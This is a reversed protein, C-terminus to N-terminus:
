YLQLSCQALRCHDRYITKIHSHDNLCTESYYSNIVIIIINVDIIRHLEWGTKITEHPTLGKKSRLLIDNGKMTTNLGKFQM